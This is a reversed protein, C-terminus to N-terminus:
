KPHARRPHPAIHHLVAAVRLKSGLGDGRKSGLGDELRGQTIDLTFAFLFFRLYAKRFTKFFTLPM